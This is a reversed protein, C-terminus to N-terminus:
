RRLPRGNNRSCRSVCLQEIVRAAIQGVGSTKRRNYRFSFEDLYAQLHKERVAGAHSGLLWRKLLSITWDSEGGEGEFGQYYTSARSRDM